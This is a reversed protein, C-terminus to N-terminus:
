ASAEARARPRRDRPALAAGTRASRATTSARTAPVGQGALAFVERARRLRSRRASGRWSRRGGAGLAAARRGPAPVARRIRQVRRQYNTFTGTWRPGCRRRCCWAPRPRAGPGRADGDGRRVAGQRARRRGRRDAAARPGAAGAGEGPGRPLGGPDGDVGTRGSARTSAARPTRTATPACCCTTRACAAGQGAPRRRPLRAHRGRREALARFAFLDENTAQPTALFARRPARRRSRRPSATSPRASADVGQWGAAGGSARAPSARRDAGIEKYARPRPRVDLVQQRRRQPAAAAAAGRRRPPGRLHQLRDLLRPLGVRHAELFWVRM